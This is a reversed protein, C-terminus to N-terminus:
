FKPARIVFVCGFVLLKDRIDNGSLSMLTNFPLILLSLILTCSLLAM